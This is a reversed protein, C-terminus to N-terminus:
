CINTKNEILLILFEQMTRKPSAIAFSTGLSTM